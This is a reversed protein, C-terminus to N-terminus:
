LMSRYLNYMYGHMFALAIMSYIFFAWEALPPLWFILPIELAAAALLLVVPLTIFKRWILLRRKYVLQKASHLAKLPTMDPLTVIYLAFASGTIMRLSWWVPVACILGALLKEGGDIVIGNTVLVSYVYTGLALPILQVGITLLVLLFPVLPYMGSYFSDRIRPKRQSSTQRLAWIFALSVLILLLGQYTGSTPTSGGGSTSILYVFSTVATEVQGLAGKFISSVLEKFNGLDSTASLGRVLLLNLVGYILTIGGFLKRAHWLQLAARVLLQRAKPLPTRSPAPLHRGWTWPRYWIRQPAPLLRTGTTDRRVTAKASAPATKKGNKKPAWKKVGSSHSKVETKPM